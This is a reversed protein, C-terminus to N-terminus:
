TGVEREEFLDVLSGGLWPGAFSDDDVRQAREQRLGDCVEHALHAFPEAILHRDMEVSVVIEPQGSRRRDRGYAGTCRPNVAGHVAHALAGSVCVDALDRERKPGQVADLRADVQGLCPLGRVDDAPERM